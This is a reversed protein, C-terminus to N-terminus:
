NEAVVLEIEEVLFEILFSVKLRTNMEFIIAKRTRTPIRIAGFVWLLGKLKLKELYEFEIKKLVVPKIEKM